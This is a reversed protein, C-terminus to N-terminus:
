FNNKKLMNTCLIIQNLELEGISNQSFLFVDNCDNVLLQLGVNSLECRTTMLPDLCQGLQQSVKLTNLISPPTHPLNYSHPQDYHEWTNLIIATEGVIQSSLAIVESEASRSCIM